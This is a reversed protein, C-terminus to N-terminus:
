FPLDVLIGRQKSCYDARSVRPRRSDNWGGVQPPDKMCDGDLPGPSERFWFCTECTGHQEIEKRRAETIKAAAAEDQM